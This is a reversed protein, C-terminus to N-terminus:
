YFIEKVPMLAADLLISFFKNKSKKKSSKNIMVKM